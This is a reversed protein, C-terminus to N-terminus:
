KKDPPKGKSSIACVSAYMLTIRRNKNLNRNKKETRRFKRETKEWKTKQKKIKTITESEKSFFNNTCKTLQSPQIGM